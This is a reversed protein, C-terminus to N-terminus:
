KLCLKIGDDSLCSIRTESRTDVCTDSQWAEEDCNVLEIDYVSCEVNADDDEGRRSSPVDASKNAHCEIRIRSPYEFM